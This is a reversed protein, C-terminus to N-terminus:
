LYLLRVAIGEISIRRIAFDLPFYDTMALLNASDAHCDM